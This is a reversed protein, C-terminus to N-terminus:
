PSRSGDTSPGQGRTRSEIRKSPKRKGSSRVPLVQKQPRPRMWIV